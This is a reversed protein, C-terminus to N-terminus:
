LEGLVRVGSPGALVAAQALGVFLGHEIVGPIAHLRIGLDRPDELVGFAVDFVLNGNDTTFPQEGTRRLVPEGGLRAIRRGTEEWLFPLVEVPVPGAGLRAVAKSVDAIVVFRRSAHAVVKERLFAGGRGKICNCQPDIEDAGDVALDIPRDITQVLPIQWSRARMESDRSTAVATVSLGNRVLRGLGDIFYGATSGSGLGLLM